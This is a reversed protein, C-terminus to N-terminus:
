DQRADGLSVALLILTFAVAMGAFTLVPWQLLPQM